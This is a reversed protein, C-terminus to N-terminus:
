KKENMYLYAYPGVTTYGGIESQLVMSYPINVGGQITSSKITTNPGISCNAGIVTKGEIITGPYLVTDMGIEIDQGIYTQAPDVITVGNLMHATNIRTRMLETARALHVRTNIGFFENEDDAVLVGINEGSRKIIEVTDTLYYENQSNHNDLKTLADRLKSEKFIYAGANVESIAREADSCDKHEVIREFRNEANRLIRGYGTPDDMMFSVLTAGNGEAEHRQMLKTITEPTILPIDGCLIIVDGEGTIFDAAMQVAHGTGLQQKQEAFNVDGYTEEIAKQVVEGKHGVIVCVDQAGSKRATNIVYEVMTQGMVKHLVKPLNSKMRTGEGAALVIVKVNKDTDKM